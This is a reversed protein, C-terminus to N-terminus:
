NGGNKIGRILIVDINKREKRHFPYTHAIPFKYRKILTTGGGCMEVSRMVFDETDALHLSYIVRGIEFAKRLFVMDAHKHSKQAGFPPNQLVTDCRERFDKVDSKVFEVKVGMRATNERAVEVAGGDIDMGIAEDAGLLKAGIAFIGNGCGLEVVKKEAIDGLSYALSLIDAAIDAPTNYQELEVKSTYTTLSQLKMELAKKKM